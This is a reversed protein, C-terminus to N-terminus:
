NLLVLIGIATYVTDLYEQHHVTSMDCVHLISLSIFRLFLADLQNENDSLVSYKGM